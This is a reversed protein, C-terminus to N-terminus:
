FTTYQMILKIGPAADDLDFLPSIVEITSTGDKNLILKGLLGNVGEVKYLDGYNGLIHFVYKNTIDSYGVNKFVLNGICLHHISQKM